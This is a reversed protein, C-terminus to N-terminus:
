PPGFQFRRGSVEAPVIRIFVPKVTPLWSRLHLDEAALIEAEKEIVTATGKVM